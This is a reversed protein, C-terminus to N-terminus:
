SAAGTVRLEIEAFVNGQLQLGGIPPVLIDSHALALQFQSSAQTKREKAFPPLLVSVYYWGEQTWSLVIPRKSAMSEGNALRRSLFLFLQCLQCSLSHAVCPSSHSENPCIPVTYHIACQLVSYCLPVLPVGVGNQINHLRTEWKLGDWCLVQKLAPITIDRVLNGAECKVWWFSEYVYILLSYTFVFLLECDCWLYVQVVM